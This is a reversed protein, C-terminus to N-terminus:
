NDGMLASYIDGAVPQQVYVYAVPSAAFAPWPALMALLCLFLQIKRTM